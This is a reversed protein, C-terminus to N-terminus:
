AQRAKDIAARAAGEAAMAVDLAARCLGAHQYHINEYLQAASPCAQLLADLGADHPAVALESALHNVVSRYQAADVGRASHELRELIRALLVMNQNLIVSNNM